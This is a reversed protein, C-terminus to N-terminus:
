DNKSDNQRRITCGIKTTVESLYPRYPAIKAARGNTHLMYITVFPNQHFTQFPQVHCLFFAMLDPNNQTNRNVAPNKVMLLYPSPTLQLEKSTRWTAASTQSKQDSRAQM